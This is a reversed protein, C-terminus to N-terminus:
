TGKTRGKYQWRKKPAEARADVLAVVDEMSWLRTAIRAGMAPTCHVTKHTQVFNRVTPYLGLAYVHDDANKSIADTIGTFRRMSLRVTLIQREVYRPTCAHIWAEV